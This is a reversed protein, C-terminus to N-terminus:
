PSGNTDLLLSIADLPELFGVRALDIVAGANDPIQRLQQTFCGDLSISAPALLMHRLHCGDVM